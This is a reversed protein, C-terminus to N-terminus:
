EGEKARATAREHALQEDLRKAEVARASDTELWDPYTLFAGPRNEARWYLYSTETITGRRAKMFAARRARDYDLRHRRFRTQAGRQQCTQIGAAPALRDCLLPRGPTPAKGLYFRGCSECVFPHVDGRAPARSLAFAALVALSPVDIDAGPRLGEPPRVGPTRYTIQELPGAIGLAFIERARRNTRKPPSLSQPEDPLTLSLRGATPSDVVAFRHVTEHLVDCAGLPKTWHGAADVDAHEGWRGSLWTAYLALEDNTRRLLGLLDNLARVEPILEGGADLRIRYRSELQVRM